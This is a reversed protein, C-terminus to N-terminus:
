IRRTVMFYYFKNKLIKKFVSHTTRTDGYGRMYIREQALAIVIQLDKQMDLPLRYWELQYVANGIDDFQQTIEGGFHCFLFFPFLSILVSVGGQLIGVFDGTKTLDNIQLCLSGFVAITFVPCAFVIASNVDSFRNAFERAASHFEIIGNLKEKLINREM